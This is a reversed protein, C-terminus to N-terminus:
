LDPDNGTQREDTEWEIVATGDRFVERHKGEHGPDLECMFTATNDGYDDGVFLRANCRGPVDEPAGWM